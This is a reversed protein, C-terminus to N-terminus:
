VDPQADGYFKTKIEQLRAEAYARSGYRPTQYRNGVTTLEVFWTNDGEMDEFEVVRMGLVNEPYLHLQRRGWPNQLHMVIQGPTVEWRASEQFLPTMIMPGGVTGAGLILLLFFPSTINFPWVAPGLEYIVLAIIVFGIAVFLARLWLSEGTEIIVPQQSESM